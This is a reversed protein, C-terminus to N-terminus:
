GSVDTYDGASPAPDDLPLVVTKPATRRPEFGLGAAVVLKGSEEPYSELQRVNSGKELDFRSM